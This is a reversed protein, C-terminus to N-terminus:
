EFLQNCIRKLLQLFVSKLTAFRTWSQEPLKHNVLDPSNRSWKRLTRIVACLIGAPTSASIAMLHVPRSKRLCSGSASIV